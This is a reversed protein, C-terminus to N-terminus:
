ARASPDYMALINALPTGAQIHHCSAMIYGGGAGLTRRREAVEARVEAPTGAPLTHVIDIGGHFSLRGGFDEKLREPEMGAADAQVPNIVEVGMAILDPLIPVIAGDGHYM